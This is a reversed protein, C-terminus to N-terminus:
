TGFKMTWRRKALLAADRRTRGYWGASNRGEKRKCLVAAAFGGIAGVPGVVLRSGRTWAWFRVDLYALCKVWRQLPFSVRGKIVDKIRKILEKAGELM